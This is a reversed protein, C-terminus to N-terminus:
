LGKDRPDQPPKTTDPEKEQGPSETATAQPEKASSLQRMQEEHEHKEKELSKGVQKLAREIEAEVEPIDLSHGVLKGTGQELLLRDLLAPKIELTDISPDSIGNLVERVADERAAGEKGEKAKKVAEKIEVQHQKPIPGLNYIRSLIDSPAPVALGNELIWQIHKSGSLAEATLSAKHTDIKVYRELAVMSSICCLFVPSETNQPM